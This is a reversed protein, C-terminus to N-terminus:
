ILGDFEDCPDRTQSLRTSLLNFFYGSNIQTLKDFERSLDHFQSLRM